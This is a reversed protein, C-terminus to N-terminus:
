NGLFQGLFNRAAQTDLRSVFDANACDADGAVIVGALKGQYLQPGGSDGNCSTGDGGPVDRYAKAVGKSGGMLANFSVTTQAREGDETYRGTAGITGQVGFGVDTLKTGVALGGYVDAQPLAAISLDTIPQDLLIVGIDKELKAISTPTSPEALWAPNTVAVGTHVTSTTSPQTQILDFSVGTGFGMTDHYHNAAATCHSATLFVTPAILTGSCLRYHNAGAIVVMTGVNTHVTDHSGDVIASASAGSDTTANAGCGALGFCLLVLTASKM